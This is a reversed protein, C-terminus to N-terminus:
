IMYGPHKCVKTSLSLPQKRFSAAGKKEPLILMNHLYIECINMISNSTFQKMWAKLEM